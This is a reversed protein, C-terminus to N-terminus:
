TKPLDEPAVDGLSWVSAVTPRRTHPQKRSRHIEPVLAYKACLGVRRYGPVDAPTCASRVELAAARSSYYVCCRHGSGGYPRQTAPTTDVYASPAYRADQQCAATLASADSGVVMAIFLGAAERSPWNNRHQLLDPLCVDRLFHAFCYMLTDLLASYEELMGIDIVSEGFDIRGNRLGCAVECLWTKLEFSLAVHPARNGTRLALAM